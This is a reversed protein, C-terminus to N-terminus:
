FYEGIERNYINFGGSIILDSKRERLRFYFDGSLIGMDGTKLNGDIFFDITAQENKWYGAFFQTRKCM